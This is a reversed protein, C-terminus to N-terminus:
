PFLPLVKSLIIVIVVLVICIAILLHPKITIVADTEEYFRILGAASMVGPTDRKGKRKSM